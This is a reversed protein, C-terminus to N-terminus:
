LLRDFLDREWAAGESLGLLGPTVGVSLSSQGHHQSKCSCLCQHPYWPHKPSFEPVDLSSPSDPHCAKRSSQHPKELYGSSWVSRLRTSRM